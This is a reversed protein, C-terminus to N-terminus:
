ATPPEAEAPPTYQALRTIRSDTLVLDSVADRILDGVRSAVDTETLGAAIVGVYGCSTRSDPPAPPAAFPAFAVNTVGLGGHRGRLANVEAETFDRDILFQVHFLYQPVGDSM